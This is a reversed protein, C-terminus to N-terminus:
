LVTYGSRFLPLYHQDVGPTNQFARYAVMLSSIESTLSSLCPYDKNTSVKVISARNLGKCEKIRDRFCAETNTELETEGLDVHVRDKQAKTALENILIDYKTCVVVIPM